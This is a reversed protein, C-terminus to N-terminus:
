GRTIAYCPSQLRILLVISSSFQLLYLADVNHTILLMPNSICKKVLWVPFGQIIHKIKWKKKKENYIPEHDSNTLQISSAM